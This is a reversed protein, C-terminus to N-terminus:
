SSRLRTELKRSKVVGILVGLNKDLISWWGVRKTIKM